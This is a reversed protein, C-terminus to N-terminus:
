VENVSSIFELLFHSPVVETCHLTGQRTFLRKFLEHIEKSKNFYLASNGTHLLLLKSGKSYPRVTKSLIQKSASKVSPFAAM